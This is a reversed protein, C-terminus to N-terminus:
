IIVRDESKSPIWVNDSIDSDVNLLGIGRGDSDYLLHDSFLSYGDMEKSVPERTDIGSDAAAPRTDPYDSSKSGTAAGQHIRDLQPEESCNLKETLLRELMSRSPSQPPNPNNRNGVPSQSSSNSGVYIEAIGNKALMAASGRNPNLSENTLLLTELVTNACRKRNDEMMGRSAGRSSSHSRNPRTIKSPLWETRCPPSSLSSYRHDELESCSRRKGFSSSVSKKLSKRSVSTVEKSESGTVIWQESSCAGYREIQNSNYSHNRSIGRSCTVSKTWAHQVDVNMEQEDRNQTQEPYTTSTRSINSTQNGSPNSLNRGAARDYMCSPYKASETTSNSKFHKIKSVDSGNLADGDASKNQSYENLHYLPFCKSHHTQPVASFIKCNGTTTTSDNLLDSSALPETGSPQESSRDVDFFDEFSLIEDTEPNWDNQFLEGEIDSGFSNEDVDCFDNTFIGFNDSLFNVSGFSSPLSTPTSSGSWTGPTPSGVNFCNKPISTPFCGPDEESSGYGSSPESSSKQNGPNM